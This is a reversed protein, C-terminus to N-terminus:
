KLDLLNDRYRIGGNSGTDDDDEWEWEEEEEEEEDEVEEKSVNEQYGSSGNTQFHNSSYSAEASMEISSRRPLSITFSVNTEPQEQGGVNVVSM